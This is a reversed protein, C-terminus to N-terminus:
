KRNSPFTNRFQCSHLYVIILTLKLPPILSTPSCFKLNIIPNLTLPICFNLYLVLILSPSFYSIIHIAPLTVSYVGEVHCASPGCRYARKIKASFSVKNWCSLNVNRRWDFVDFRWKKSSSGSSIRFSLKRKAERCDIAYLQIKINM